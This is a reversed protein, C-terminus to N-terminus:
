LMNSIDAITWEECNKAFIGIMKMSPYRSDENGDSCLNEHVIASGIAVALNHIEKYTKGEYLTGNRTFLCM